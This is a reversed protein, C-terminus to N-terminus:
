AVQSGRKGKKADAPAASVDVPPKPGLPSITSVFTSSSCAPRGRRAAGWLRARPSGLPSADRRGGNASANSGVGPIARALVIPVEDGRYFANGDSTWSAFTVKVLDDIAPHVTGTGRHANQDHARERPSVRYRGASRARRYNGFRSISSSCEPPANSPQVYTMTPPIWIRRTEGVVMESLAETWGPIARAVHFSVMAM